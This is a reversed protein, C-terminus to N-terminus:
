WVSAQYHGLTELLTRYAEKDLAKAHQAHLLAKLIGWLIPTGLLIPWAQPLILVNSLMQQNDTQALFVKWLTNGYRLDSYYYYNFVDVVLFSLLLSSWAKNVMLDVGELYGTIGYIRKLLHESETPFCSGTPWERSFPWQLAKFLLPERLFWRNLRGYWSPGAEEGDLITADAIATTQYQIEQSTKM